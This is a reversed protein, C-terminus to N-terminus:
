GESGAGVYEVLPDEGQDWGHRKVNAAPVMDGANHANATGIKIQRRARYQGYEKAQAERRADIEAQEEATLDPLNAEAWTPQGAAQRKERAEEATLTKAGRKQASTLTDPKAASGAAPEEAM